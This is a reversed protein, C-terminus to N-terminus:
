AEVVGSELIRRGQGHAALVALALRLGGAADLVAALEGPALSVGGPILRHLFDEAEAPELRAIRMTASGGPLAEPVRTTFLVRVREGVEAVDFARSHWPHWVDDVIILAARGALAAELMEKGEAPHRPPRDANGGLRRLLRAQLRRVDESTAREGVTVWYVGDPFLHATRHAVAAALVSKGTGGEGQLGSIATLNGTAVQAALADLGNPEVYHEPLQPVGDLVGTKRDPPTAELGEAPVLLRLASPPASPESTDTSSQRLSRAHEGIKNSLNTLVRDRLAAPADVLLEDDVNNVFNRERLPNDDELGEFALAFIKFWSDNQRRQEITPWEKDQIYNSDQWMDSVVVIAGAARTLAALIVDTFKDWADLNREDRWLELEGRRRRAGLKAEVKEVFDKQERAYCVFYVPPDAATALASSM